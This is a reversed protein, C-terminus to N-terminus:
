FDKILLIMLAIAFSSMFVVALSLIVARMSERSRVSIKSRPTFIEDHKFMLHVRKM